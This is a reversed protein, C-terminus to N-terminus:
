ETRLSKVPNAMAAKIAQFSITALAIVVALLGAAFFIWCSINIRYAFDNLWNHMIYWAVPSAIVFALIILKIFDKSILSAISSVSAGLVKRIGIEKVRTHVALHTLGFLGLCCILLSLVTAANIVQQWKREQNYERANLEDWFTYTYETGPIAIKYAKELAALSQKQRNKDIKLLVSGETGDNMVLMLPQIIKKLSGQHYNNNVGIIAFTKKAYWDDVSISAGVPNQLNLAKVFAENVIVANTKDTGYRNSFNRGEKVPIELMPLYSEDVVKYAYDLLKDNIYRKGVNKTGEYSIKVIGPEKALENKFTSYILNINRRPPMDIRIVNYPNYGLDKTSVFDM